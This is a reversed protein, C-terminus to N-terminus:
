EKTEMEGFTTINDQKSLEMENTLYRKGGKMVLKVCKEIGFEM